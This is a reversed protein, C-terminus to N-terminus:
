VILMTKSEGGLSDKLFHTLKSDRYPVYTATTNTATAGVGGASPALALFVKGLTTLSQNIL